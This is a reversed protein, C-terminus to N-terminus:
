RRSSWSGFPQSGGKSDPHSYTLFNVYQIRAILSM